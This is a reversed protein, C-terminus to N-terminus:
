EKQQYSDATNSLQEKARISGIPTSRKLATDYKTIFDAYSRELGVRLSTRARWGIAEIKSVDLLKRPAGDPRSPDFVLKGRFGVVEAVLEALHAITVDRGTGVNIPSAGSYRQLVILCAEALDDVYIFERKPSGTGWVTVTQAGSIRAEHFRRILGAIVHSNEPHYNDGPGFVNTPMVSVFDAGYQRRYAQCLKVGAIKAIAYWENTPELPGTLLDDEKM